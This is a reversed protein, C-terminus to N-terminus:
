LSSSNRMEDVESERGFDMQTWCCSMTSVAPSPTPHLPHGHSGVHRSVSEASWSANSPIAKKGTSGPPKRRATRRIWDECALSVFGLASSRPDLLMGATRAAHECSLLSVSAPFDFQGYLSFSSAWQGCICSRISCGHCM